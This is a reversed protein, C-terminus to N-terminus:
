HGCGHNPNVLTSRISYSLNSYVGWRHLIARNFVCAIFDDHTQPFADHELACPTHAKKPDIHKPWFQM